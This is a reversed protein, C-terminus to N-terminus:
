PIEPLQLDALALTGTSAGAPVPQLVRGIVTGGPTNALAVIKAQPVTASNNPIINDGTVGPGGAGVLVTTCQGKTQLYVWDGAVAPSNSTTSTVLVGAVSSTGGATGLGGATGTLVADSFRNDNTVQYLARNKWYLTQGQAIAGTPTAAVAGSDIQCLQYEKTGTGAETLIVRSGAEGPHFLAAPGMAALGLVNQHFTEVNSFPGIYPSQVQRINPM